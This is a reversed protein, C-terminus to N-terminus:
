RGRRILQTAEVALRVAEAAEDVPVKSKADGRLCQVFHELELRLPEARTIPVPVAESEKSVAFFDRPGGKIVEPVSEYLHLEQNIYDLEAHGKTGTVSLRRIKVPTIWNAGCSVVADGFVCLLEVYDELANDAVSGGFASLLRGERGLIYRIVDLDHIALDLAVNVHPAAPRSTGVRRAQVSVVDGLRGNRLLSRLAEVAPNFREVHGVLLTQTSGAALDKLAEVEDLDSAMPKELLVHLGNSLFFSAAEFHLGTPLAVVVADAGSDSLDQWTATTRVGFDAAATDRAAVAGDCAQVVEVSPLQTLVRLHQRGMVGLGAVAVKVSM